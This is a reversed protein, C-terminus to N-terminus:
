AFSREQRLRAPRSTTREYISSHQAAQPLATRALRFDGEIIVLRAASTSCKQGTTSSVDVFREQAKWPPEVDTQLPALCGGHPDLLFSRPLALENNEKEKKWM